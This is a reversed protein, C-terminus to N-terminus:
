PLEQSQRLKATGTRRANGDEDGKAREKADVKLPGVAGGGDEADEGQGQQDVAGKEARHFLDHGVRGCGDEAEEIYAEGEDGKWSQVLVAM